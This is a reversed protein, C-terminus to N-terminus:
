RRSGWNGGDLLCASVDLIQQDASISAIKLLAVGDTRVTWGAESNLRANVLQRVADASIKM